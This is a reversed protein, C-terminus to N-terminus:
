KPPTPVARRVESRKVQARRRGEDLNKAARDAAAESVQILNRVSKAGALRALRTATGKHQIVDTKGELVAVGNQVRVQFKNKSIKSKALKARIALELESDSKQVRAPAASKDAAAGPLACFVALCLIFILRM